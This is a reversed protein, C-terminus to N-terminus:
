ALKLRPEATHGIGGLMALLTSRLVKPRGDAGILHPIRQERLWRIQAAATRRGTLERLEERTLLM